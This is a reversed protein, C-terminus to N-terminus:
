LGSARVSTDLEGGDDRHVWCHVGRYRAVADEFNEATPVFVGIELSSLEYPAGVYPEFADYCNVIAWQRIAEDGPFLAPHPAPYQLLAYVEAQHPQNCDVRTTVVSRGQESVEDFQSFCEGPHLDYKNVVIGPLTAPDLHGVSTTTADAGDASSDAALRDRDEAARAAAAAPDRVADPASPASDGGGGCAGAVLSALAVLAVLLRTAGAAGAVTRPSAPGPRSSAPAVAPRTM